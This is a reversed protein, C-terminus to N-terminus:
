SNKLIPIMYFFICSLLRELILKLEIDLCLVENNSVLLEGKVAFFAVYTWSHGYLILMDRDLHIFQKPLPLRKVPLCMDLLSVLNPHKKEEIHSLMLRMHGDFIVYM